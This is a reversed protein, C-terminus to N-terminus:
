PSAIARLLLLCRRLRIFILCCQFFRRSRFFAAAAVAFYGCGRRTPRPMRGASGDAGRAERQRLARLLWLNVEVVAPYMGTPPPMRPCTSPTTISRRPLRPSGKLSLGDAVVAEPVRGEVHAAGRSTKFTDAGGTAKRRPTWAVEQCM